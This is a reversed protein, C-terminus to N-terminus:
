LLNPDKSVLRLGTTLGIQGERNCGLVGGTISKCKCLVTLPPWKKNESKMMSM